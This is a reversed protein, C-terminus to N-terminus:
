EPDAATVEDVSEDVAENVRWLYLSAYSRYPAWREAEEVMEARTMERGYLAEMGKRVGLDGVPFV